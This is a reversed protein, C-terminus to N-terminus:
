PVVTKMYSYSWKIRPAKICVQNKQAKYTETFDHITVNMSDVTSLFFTTLNDGNIGWFDTKQNVVDEISRRHNQDWTVVRLGVMQNPCGVFFDADKQRELVYEILFGQDQYFLVVDFPLWQKPRDPDDPWPGILVQTPEGYRSLIVPMEYYESKLYKSFGLKHAVDVQLLLYDIEPAGKHIFGFTEGLTDEVIQFYLSSSNDGWSSTTSFDNTNEVHGFQYEFQHLADIDTKGPTIGWLCPFDCGGNTNLVHLFVEKSREPSLTPMLNFSHTSMPILTPSPTLTAASKEVRPTKSATPTMMQTIHVTATATNATITPTELVCSNTCGVILLLALLVLCSTHLTETRM